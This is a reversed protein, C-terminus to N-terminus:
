KLYKDLWGQRIKPHDLKYKEQNLCKHCLKRCHFYNPHGIIAKGCKECKQKKM